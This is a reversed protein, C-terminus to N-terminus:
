NNHSIFKVAVGDHGSVQGIDRVRYGEPSKAIHVIIDLTRTVRRLGDPKVMRLVFLRLADAIDAGHATTMGGGTCEAWTDILLDAEAAHLDGLVVRDPRMRYCDMLLEGVTRGESAGWFSPKFFRAMRSLCVLEDGEDIIAISESKRMATVEMLLANLLTTRGSGVSGAILINENRNLARRLINAQDPTVTGNAILLHLPLPVVETSPRRMLSPVM